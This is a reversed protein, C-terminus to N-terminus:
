FRSQTFSELSAEALFDRIEGIATLIDLCLKESKPLMM